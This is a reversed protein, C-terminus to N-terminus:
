SAGPAAPLLRFAQIASSDGRMAIAGVYDPDPAILALSWATAPEGDYEIVAAPRDPRTQVTFRCLQNAIGEGSAKVVAEKCAWTRLFAEEREQPAMAELSNAETESFYRRALGLCNKARRAAPELDVGLHHASSIGILLRDGSKAMSFHLQQDHHAADLVPKGRESRNIHVSKGPLGLYSGLLLRLFFRRAFILQGPTFSVEGTGNEHGDLATQLSMALASLDLYWAHIVRAAPPHLDRLPVTSQIWVKFRSGIV